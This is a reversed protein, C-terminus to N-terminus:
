KPADINRQERRRTQRAQPEGHEHQAGARRGGGVSCYCNNHETGAGYNKYQKQAQRALLRLQESVRLSASSASVSSAACPFCCSTFLSVPGPHILLCVLPSTFLSATRIRPFYISDSRMVDAPPRYAARPLPLTPIHLLSVMGNM